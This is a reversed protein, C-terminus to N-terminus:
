FNSGNTSLFGFGGGKGNSHMDYDSKARWLSSDHHNHINNTASSHRRPWGQSMTDRGLRDVPEDGENDVDRDGNHHQSTGADYHGNTEGDEEENDHDTSNVSIIDEEPSVSPQSGHPRPTSRARMMEPQEEGSMVEMPETGDLLLDVLM